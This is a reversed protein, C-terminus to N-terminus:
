TPHCLDPGTSDTLLDAYILQLEIIAQSHAPTSSFQEILFAVAERLKVTTIDELPGLWRIQKEMATAMVGNVKHSEYLTHWRDYLKQVQKDM